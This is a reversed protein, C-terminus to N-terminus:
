AITVNPQDTKISPERKLKKEQSPKSVNRSEDEEQPPPAMLNALQIRAVMSRTQLEDIRTVLEQHNVQAELFTKQAEWFAMMQNKRQEIQEPTYEENTPQNTDQM